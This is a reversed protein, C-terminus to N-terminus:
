DEKLLEGSSEGSLVKGLKILQSNPVTMGKGVKWEDKSTKRYEKSLLTNQEDRNVLATIRQTSSNNHLILKM